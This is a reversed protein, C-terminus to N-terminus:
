SPEKLRALLARAANIYGARIINDNDSDCILKVQKILEARDRELRRAHEMMYLYSGKMTKRPNADIRDTLPTDSTKTM